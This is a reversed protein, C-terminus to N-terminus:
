HRRELARALEDAEINLSDREGHGLPFDDHIIRSDVLRLGDGLGGVLTVGEGFKDVFGEEKPEHVAEVFGDRGFNGGRVRIVCVAEGGAGAAYGLLVGDEAEDTDEINVAELVKVSIAELLEEDVVGVLTELAVEVAVEELDLLLLVGPFSDVPGVDAEVVVPGAQFQQLSAASDNADQLCEVICPTAHSAAGFLVGLEDGLQMVVETSAGIRGWLMDMVDGRTDSKVVLKGDNMVGSFDFVRSSTEDVFIDLGQGVLELVKANGAGYGQGLFDKLHRLDVTAAAHLM